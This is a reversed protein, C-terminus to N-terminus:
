ENMAERRAALLRELEGEQPLSRGAKRAEFQVLARMLSNSARTSEEESIREGNVVKSARRESELISAALDRCLSEDAITLTDCGGLENLLSYFIMRFRRAATSRGDIDQLVARGTSIRDQFQPKAKAKVASSITM